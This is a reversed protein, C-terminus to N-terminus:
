ASTQNQVPEWGLIKAFKEVTRPEYYAGGHWWADPRIRLRKAFAIQVSRRDKGYIEGIDAHSLKGGPTYKQRCAEVSESSFVLMRGIKGAPKIKGDNIMKRMASHSIGLIEEAEHKSVFPLDSM